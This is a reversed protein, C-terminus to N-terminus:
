IGIRIRAANSVQGDVHSLIDTEGIGNLSAPIQLTLWETGPEMAPAIGLVPVRVGGITVEIEDLRKANRFGSALIKVRSAPAIPFTKCDFGKCESLPQKGAMGIVPGRCSHGTMFGPATDAIAINASISSGDERQITMRAPGPASDMPVVFNTQGWGESAWMIGAPRSVGRSDTVQITIKGLSKRAQGAPPIRADHAALIPGYALALGGRALSVGGSGGVIFLGREESGRLHGEVIRGMGAYPYSPRGCTWGNELSSADHLSLDKVLKGPVFESVTWSIRRADFYDLNDEVMQSLASPDSPLAECASADDLKLDWGNAILPAQQSLSAFRARRQAPTLIETFAPSVEYIANAINTRESANVIVPQAAGAARIAAAMEASGAAFMVNPNQQFRAAAKSWFASADGDGKAAIVALLDVDNATRVVRELQEFFGPRTSESADVTLRVANMNFRLRIASLTTSSHAGYVQGASGQDAAATNLGFPKLQTGRLLFPHGDSDLIQNGQVTFPGHPKPTLQTLGAGSLLASMGLFTAFLRLKM